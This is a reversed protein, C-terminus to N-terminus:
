SYVAAIMRGNDPRAYATSEYDIKSFCRILFRDQGDYRPSFPSRGHVARRNDVIMIEGQELRHRLRYMYYIDVIKKIMQDADKTLGRMLDQDFRLHPDDDPGYLIPMPERLDGELFEKGHLNSRYLSLDAGSPNIEKYTMSLSSHSDESRISNMAQKFSLDVGTMWLPERLLAQEEPTLHAILVNVPLIYTFAHPDGRLCALSLFDPRLNSFAQETHIELETQSGLSTQATSLTPNPVIDQFLRGHGEAEYAVLESVSQILLAQIHALETTEGIHHTNDNPTPPLTDPILCLNRFLLFGTDPSGHKAFQKLSAQIFLPLRQALHKTQNCYLDPTYNPSTTIDSIIHQLESQIEQPFLTAM